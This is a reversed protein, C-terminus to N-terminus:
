AEIIFYILIIYLNVLIYIFQCIYNPTVLYESIKFSSLISVHCILNMNKRLKKVFVVIMEKFFFGVVGFCYFFECSYLHKLVPCGWGGTYVAPDKNGKEENFKLVRKQDLNETRFIAQILCKIVIMGTQLQIYILYNKPIFTCTYSAMLFLSYIVLSPLTTFKPPPPVTRFCGLFSSVFNNFFESKLANLNFLKM